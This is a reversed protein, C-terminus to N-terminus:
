ASWTRFAGQTLAPSVFLGLYYRLSKTKSTIVEKKYQYLFVLLFLAVYSLCYIVPMVILLVSPLLVNLLITKKHNDSHQDYSNRELNDDSRTLSYM